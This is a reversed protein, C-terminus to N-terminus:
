SRFFAIELFSVAQRVPPAATTKPRATSNASVAPYPCPSELALHHPGTNASAKIVSPTAASIRNERFALDLASFRCSRDSSLIASAFAIAACAVLSADSTESRVARTSCSVAHRLINGSAYLWSTSAMRGFTATEINHGFILLRRRFM